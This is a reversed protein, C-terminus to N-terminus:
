SVVLFEFLELLNVQEDKIIKRLGFFISVLLYIGGIFILFLVTVLVGRKLDEFRDSGCTTCLPSYELFAGIDVKVLQLNRVMVIVDESMEEYDLYLDVTLLTLIGVFYLWRKWLKTMITVLPFAFCFHMGGKLFSCLFVLILSICKPRAESWTM